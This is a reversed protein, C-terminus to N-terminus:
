ANANPNLSPPLKPARNVGLVIGSPTKYISTGDAQMEVNYPPEAPSGQAPLPAAGGMGTNPLQMAGAAQQPAASAPGAPRSIPGIISSLDLPLKGANSLPMAM